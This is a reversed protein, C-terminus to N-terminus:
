RDTRYEEGVTKRERGSVGLALFNLLCSLSDYSHLISPLLKMSQHSFLVNEQNDLSRQKDWLDNDM